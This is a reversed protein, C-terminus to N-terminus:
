RRRATSSASDVAQGDAPDAPSAPNLPVIQPFARLIKRRAASRKKALEKMSIQIQKKEWCNDCWESEPKNSWICPPHGDYGVEREPEEYNPCERLKLRRQRLARLELEIRCFESAATTFRNQSNTM